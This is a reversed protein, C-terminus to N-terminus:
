AIAQQAFPVRVHIHHLGDTDREIFLNGGSGQALSIAKKLMLLGSPDKTSNALPKYRLNIEVSDTQILEILLNNSGYTKVLPLLNQLIRYVPLGIASPLDARLSSLNEVEVEANKAWQELYDQILFASNSQSADVPRIYNCLTTIENIINEINEKSKALFNNRLDPESSAFDIYLKTAALTQAFNEHLQHAIFHRESEEEKISLRHLAKEAEILKNTYKILSENKRRLELLRSVQNAIILLSDQQFRSLKRTETDMVCVSGIKQGSHSRIPAGAYFKIYPAGNVFPNDAFREDERADPVLMLSDQKITFTCFSEGRHTQCPDINKRAKFWQRDRDIFSIAAMPCDAISAAMEMLQSFDEEDSSDLIGFSYLDALRIEEELDVIDPKM